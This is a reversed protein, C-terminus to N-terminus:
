IYVICAEDLAFLPGDMFYKRLMKGNKSWGEGQVCHTRLPRSGGGEGETRVYAIQNSTYYTHYIYYMTLLNNEWAIM